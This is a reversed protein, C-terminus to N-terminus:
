EGVLGDGEGDVHDVGRAHGLAELRQEHTRGSASPGERQPGQQHGQEEQGDVVTRQV